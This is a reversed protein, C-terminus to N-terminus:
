KDAVMYRVRWSKDGACERVTPLVYTTNEEVSLLSAFAVCNSVALLRVSDQEDGALFTFMPVLDLIVYESDNEKAFTGLHTSAARRVIPTDDHCLQNYLNRLESGYKEDIKNILVAFLGCASTRSTFWEGMALNKVLTLFKTSLM